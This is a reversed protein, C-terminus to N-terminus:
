RRWRRPTPTQDMDVPEVAVISAVRLRVKGAYGTAEFRLVALEDSIATEIEEVLDLVDDLPMRRSEYVLGGTCHVRCLKRPPLEVAAPAAM